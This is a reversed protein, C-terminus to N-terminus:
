PKLPSELIFRCLKRYTERDGQIESTALQHLADTGSYLAISRSGYVGSSRAWSLYDDFRARYKAAQAAGAVAEVMSYEFELELGMGYRDIERFTAAMPKEGNEDWYYNPQMYAVDIGFDKWKTYGPAMCYPIWYLGEGCDHLYDAVAPIVEDYRKYEARWQTDLIEPLIYFGLLEIHQYHKRAFAARTEDIFWRCARIRDEVRSFDLEEGDVDGWYRTSAGAPNGMGAIYNDFYIPEPMGMVVYRRAPPPGIRAATEAICDELADLQGTPFVPSPTVMRGTYWRSFSTKGDGWYSEQWDFTGGDFWFDLLQQWLKKPASPTASETLVYTYGPTGYVGTQQGEILLFSDFLWHERGNEDTYSVHTRWRDRDWALPNRHSSPGPILTMDAPVPIESREREWEYRASPGQRTSFRCQELLGAEGSPGVGQAAFIYDTEPQLGDLVIDLTEPGTSGTEVEQALAPATGDAPGCGYRVAVAQITKVTFGARFASAYTLTPQVAPRVSSAGPEKGGCSALLLTLALVPLFRRM